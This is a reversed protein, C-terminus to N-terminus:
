ERYQVDIGPLITIPQRTVVVPLGSGFFGAWGTPEKYEIYKGCCFARPQKEDGFVCEVNCRDCRYSLVKLGDRYQTYHWGTVSIPAQKKKLTVEPDKQAYIMKKEV